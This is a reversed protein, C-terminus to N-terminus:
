LAGAFGDGSLAAWTLLGMRACGVCMWAYRDARGEVAMKLCGEM